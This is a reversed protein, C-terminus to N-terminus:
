CSVDVYMYAFVYWIQKEPDSNGRLTSQIGESYINNTSFAYYHMLDPCILGVSAPLSIKYFYLM